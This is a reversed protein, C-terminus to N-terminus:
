PFQPFPSVIRWVGAHYRDAGQYEWQQRLRFRQVTASPLVYYELLIVTQARHEGDSFDFSELVVDVVNLDDNGGVQQLFDTRLGPEFHGAAGPFDKWRLRMTYDRLVSSFEGEPSVMAGCASLMTMLALCGLGIKIHRIM